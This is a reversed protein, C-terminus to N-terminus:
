PGKAVAHSSAGDGGGAHGANTTQPTPTSLLRRRRMADSQNAIPPAAETIADIEEKKATV